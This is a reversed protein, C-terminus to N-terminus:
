HPSISTELTSNHIYFCVLAATLTALISNCASESNENNCIEILCCFFFGLNIFYQFAWQKWSLRLEKSPWWDGNERFCNDHDCIQDDTTIIIMILYKITLQLWWNYDNITLLWSWINSWWNYDNTTLQWSWIYRSIDSIDYIHLTIMLVVCVCCM